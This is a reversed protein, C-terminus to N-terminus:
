FADAGVEVVRAIGQSLLDPIRLLLPDRVDDHNALFLDLAIGQVDAYPRGLFLRFHRHVGEAMSDNGLRPATWKSGQRFRREQGLARDESPSMRERNEFKLVAGRAKISAQRMPRGRHGEQLPVVDLQEQAEADEGQANSEEQESKGVGQGDGRSRPVEEPTLERLILGM